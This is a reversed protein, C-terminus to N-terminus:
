SRVPFLFFNGRKTEKGLTKSKSSVSKRKKENRKTEKRKKEVGEFSGEDFSVFLPAACLVSCAFRKTKKEKGKFSFPGKRLSFSFLQGKENKKLTKSKSSVSKRKKENRKWVRLLVRMLLFSFPPLACSVFLLHFILSPFCPISFLPYSNGRKTEKGLTKSKSSVNKRKKELPLSLGGWPNKLTTARLTGLLGTLPSVFLM